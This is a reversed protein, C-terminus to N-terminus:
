GSAPNERDYNNVLCSVHPWPQAKKLNSFLQTTINRISIRAPDGFQLINIGLPALSVAM